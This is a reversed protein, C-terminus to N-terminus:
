EQGHLSSSGKLIFTQNPNELCYDENIQKYLERDLQTIITKDEDSDGEVNGYDIMVGGQNTLVFRPHMKEKKEHPHWFGVVIKEGSPIIRRFNNEIDRKRSEYRVQNFNYRSGGQSSHTVTHYEISVLKEGLSGRELIRLLVDTWKPDNADLHPDVIKISTAGMLLVEVSKIIENSTRSIKGSTVNAWGTTEAKLDNFKVTRPYSSIEGTIILDFERPNDELAAAEIWDQSSGPERPISVFYKERLESDSIKTAISYAKMESNNDYALKKARKIWKKSNPYMGILRGRDVGWHDFERHLNDEDHTLAKFSEADAMVAPEVAIEKIFVPNEM